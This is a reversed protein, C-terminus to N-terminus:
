FGEKVQGIEVTKYAARALRDNFRVQAGRSVLITLQRTYFAAKRRFGLMLYTSSLARYLHLQLSTNNAHVL